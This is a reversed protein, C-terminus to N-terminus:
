RGRDVDVQGTSGVVLVVQPLANVVLEEMDQIVRLVSAVVIFSPLLQIRAVELVSLTSCLIQSFRRALSVLKRAKEGFVGSGCHLLVLSFKEGVKHHVWFENQGSGSRIANQLGFHFAEPFQQDLEARFHVVLEPLLDFPFGRVGGPSLPGNEDLVRPLDMSPIYDVHGGLIWEMRANRWPQLDQRGELHPHALGHEITVDAEPIKYSQRTVCWGQGVAIDPGRSDAHVDKPCM